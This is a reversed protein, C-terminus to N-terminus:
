VLYTATAIFRLGNLDSYLIAANGFTAFVIFTNSREVNLTIPTTYGTIGISGGGGPTLSTFPLGSIQAQTAAGGGPFTVDFNVYVFRGIKTYTATTNNTLSGGAPTWTGEEYDDLTNANSSASQTAPFTVGSSVQFNAGSTNASTLGVLVRGSADIRMRENALGNTSFSIVDNEQNVVRLATTGGEVGIFAGDTNGTGTSANLMQVYGDGGYVSLPKNPTTTGIGVNGASDIRMRETSATTFALNNTTPLYFGAVPATGAFV